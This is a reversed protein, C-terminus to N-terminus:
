QGCGAWSHAADSALLRDEGIDVCDGGMTFQAGAAGGTGSTRGTGPSGPFLTKM